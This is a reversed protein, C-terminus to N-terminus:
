FRPVAGYVDPLDNEILVVDTPKLNSSLWQRAEAFSGMELILPAPTASRLAHLFTPIRASGVAIVLDTRLAAYAGLEAHAEDHKAGLEVMGPTILIRRGGADVVQNLVDLAAKFGSPNSNYADDILRAGSPERKVELRHQIPATSRLATAITEESLGLAKASAFATTINRGHVPGFLPVSFSTTKGGSAITVDMGQRTPIASLLRVDVGESEGSIIFHQRHTEVFAKAYPQSLVQEDVVMQGGRALVHEALEFKARAVTDLGKFREYHAEGIATIVGFDPPTLQCLRNISGPGYAGMEVIFTQTDDDLKERIIRVIGMVTNVSGPTYASRSTLQLIHGLIHKVSTKGFSGTIGVIKPHIRALKQEAERRFRAQIQKEYPDLLRNAVVLLVPVAQVAVVWFWPHAGFLLGLLAVVAFLATAALVIRKVRSTMALKKKAARSERLDVYAFGLLAFGAAIRAIEGVFPLFALVGLVLLVISLKIDFVRHERMWRFFRKGDYEDQQFFLMYRLGRAVAFGLFCAAVALNLLFLIM